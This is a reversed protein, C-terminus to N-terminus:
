AWSAELFGWLYGVLGGLPARVAELLGGLPEGRCGFVYVLHRLGVVWARHRIPRLGSPDAAGQQNM